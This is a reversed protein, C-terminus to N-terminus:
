TLVEHESSQKTAGAGAQVLRIARQLIQDYASRRPRIGGYFIFASDTEYGGEEYAQPPSVYGIVGNAYGVVYIREGTAVRLDDAFRSFVEANICLLHVDGITVLHLEITSSSSLSASAHAQLMRQRWIDVAAHYRQRAYSGDDRLAARVSQAISEIQEPDLNELPIEFESRMTRLQANEVSAAAADIAAVVSQALMCGWREVRDFGTGSSPPNVNGAAGTTFLVTPAGALAGHLQRAAAGSVDASIQRNEYSLAVPHMAYNALLARCNGDAGRLAVVGCRPDTHASAARRRDIALDCRGEGSAVTVEELRATASRAALEMQARLHRLYETDMEGCLILPLTAPGAHTHTASVIVQRAELNFEAACWVRFDNVFERTLGILDAHLWLLREGRWELYLARALLPDHVGLSPQVRFLYGSLEAGIPPTIDCSACGIRMSM